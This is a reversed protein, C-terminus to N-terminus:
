IGYGDVASQKFTQSVVDLSTTSNSYSSLGPLPFNDPLAYQVSYVITREELFAYSIM